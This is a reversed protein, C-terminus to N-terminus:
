NTQIDYTKRHKNRTCHISLERYDTPWMRNSVTMIMFLMGM